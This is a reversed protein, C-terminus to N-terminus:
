FESMLMELLQDRQTYDKLVMIIGTYDLVQADPKRLSKGLRSLSDKLARLQLHELQFVGTRFDKDGPDRKGQLRASELRVSDIGSVGSMRDVERINASRINYKGGDRHWLKYQTVTREFFQNDAGSPIGPFDREQIMLPAVMNVLAKKDIKHLMADPTREINRYRMTLGLLRRIEWQAMTLQRIATEHEYIVDSINVNEDANQLSAIKKDRAAIHGTKLKEHEYYTTIYGRVTMCNSESHLEKYYESRFKGTAAKGTANQFTDECIKVHNKIFSM